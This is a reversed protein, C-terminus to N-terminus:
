KKVHCRTKTLRLNIIQDFTTKRKVLQTIYAHFALTDRVDYRLCSLCLPPDTSMSTISFLFYKEHFVTKVFFIEIFLFRININRTHFVWGFYMCIINLNMISPKIMGTGCTELILTPKFISSNVHWDLQLTTFTAWSGTM